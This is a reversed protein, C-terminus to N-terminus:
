TLYGHDTPEDASDLPIVTIEVRPNAKDYGCLENIERHVQADDGYVIGSMADGLLKGYNSSDRKRKDPFYYRAHVQLPGTLTSGKWQSRIAYEAIEKVRRYEPATIVAAKPKGKIWRIVPL